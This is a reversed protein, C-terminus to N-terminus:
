DGNNNINLCSNEWIWEVVNLLLSLLPFDWLFCRQGFRRHSRHGDAGLALRVNDITTHPNIV